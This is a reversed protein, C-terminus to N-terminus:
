QITLCNEWRDTYIHTSPTSITTFYFSRNVFIFQCRWSLCLSFVYTWVFSQEFLRCVFSFMESVENVISSPTRTPARSLLFFIWKWTRFIWIGDSSFSLFIFAFVLLHSCFCCFTSISVFFFWFLSIFIPFFMLCACSLKVGGYVFILRNPCEANLWQKITLTM